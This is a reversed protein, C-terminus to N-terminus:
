LTGQREAQSGAWRGPWRFSFIWLGSKMVLPFTPGRSKILWKISIKKKSWLLYGVTYRGFSGYLDLLCHRELWFAAGVAESTQWLFKLRGIGMSQVFISPIGRKQLPEAHQASLYYLCILGWGKRAGYSFSFLFFLCFLSNWFLSQSNLFVFVSVFLLHFFSHNTPKTTTKEGQSLAFGYGMELKFLCLSIFVHFCCLQRM